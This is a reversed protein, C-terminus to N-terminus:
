APDDDGHVLQFDAVRPRIWLLLVLGLNFSRNLAFWSLRPASISSPELWSIGLGKANIDHVVAIAVAGVITGAGPRTCSVSGSARRTSCTPPSCRSCSSSRADSISTVTAM